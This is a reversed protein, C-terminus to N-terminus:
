LADWSPLFSRADQGGPLQRHTVQLWAQEFPQHAQMGTYIGARRNIWSGRATLTGDGPRAWSRRGHNGDLWRSGKEKKTEGASWWPNEVSNRGLYEHIKITMIHLVDAIGV